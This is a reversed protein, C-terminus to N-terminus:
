QVAPIKTEKLKEANFFEDEIAAGVQINQITLRTETKDRIDNMVLEMPVYIGGKRQISAPDITLVKRLQHGKEYLETKLALCSKKDLYTAIKEYGSSDDPYSMLVYVPIGSLVDDPFREARIDKLIGQLREFDEYSFDTGLISSSIRKSTVRRVKFLAPMYIYMDNQPEQEIILFRAGRVDVPEHFYMLVRSRNNEFRKWFVDAQLVQEYGSRDKTRLEIAQVSTSEPLNNQVCAEIEEPIEAAVLHVPHLLFLFILLIRSM